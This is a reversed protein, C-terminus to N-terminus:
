AGAAVNAGSGPLAAQIKELLADAKARLEAAKKANTLLKIDAKISPLLKGVVQPNLREAKVLKDLLAVRRDLRKTAILVYDIPAPAGYCTGKFDTPPNRYVLTRQRALEGTLLEAEGETLLGAAVMSAMSDAASKIQKVFAVRQASTSARALAAASSFAKDVTRWGSTRALRVSLTKRKIQAVLPAIEDRLKVAERRAEDTRLKKLQADSGLVALHATINDMVKDMAVPSVKDRAAVKRVLELRKGLWKVSKQAPPYYAMKYCSIRLDKPPRAVIREWIVDADVALLCAEANSILGANDLEAAAQKANTFKEKISARQAVTSGTVALDSAVRWTEVILKWQPTRPLDSSGVPILTEARAILEGSEAILRKAETRGADNLKSQHSPQKLIAVCARTKRISESVASTNIDKKSTLTKLKAVEAKLQFLVVVPSVAESAAPAAKTPPDAAPARAATLGLMSALSLAATVLARKWRPGTRAARVLDAGFLMMMAVLLLGAIGL